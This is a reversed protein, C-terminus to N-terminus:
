EKWEVSRCLLDFPRYAHELPGDAGTILVAYGERGMVFGRVVRDSNGDIIEVADRGALRSPEVSMPRLSFLREWTNSGEHILMLCFDRARMSQELERRVIRLEVPTGAASLGFLIIDNPGAAASVEDLHFHPPLQFSIKWGSPHLRISQRARIFQWAAALVALMLVAAVSVARRHSGRGGLLWAAVGMADDYFIPLSRCANVPTDPAPVLRPNSTRPEQM